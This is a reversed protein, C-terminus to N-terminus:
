VPFSWRIQRELVRALYEKNRRGRKYGSYGVNYSEIVGGYSLDEKEQLWKLFLMGNLIQDAVSGTNADTDPYLSRAWQATSPKVQMLGREGASGVASPDFNSETEIIGMVLSTPITQLYSYREKLHAIVARAEYPKVQRGGFLEKRYLFSILALSLVGLEKM